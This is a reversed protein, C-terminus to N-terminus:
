FLLYIILGSKFNKGASERTRHNLNAEPFGQFFFHKEENKNGGQRQRLRVEEKALKARLSFLKGLPRFLEAWMIKMTHAIKENPSTPM